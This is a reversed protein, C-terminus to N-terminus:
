VKACNFRQILLSFYYLITFNQNYGMVNIPYFSNNQIYGLLPTIFFDNFNYIFRNNYM